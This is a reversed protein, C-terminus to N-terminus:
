KNLYRKFIEERRPRGTGTLLGDTATLPPIIQMDHIQAYDPLTSNAAAIGATVLDKCESPPLAPVIFASLQPQGDGHVVAQAIQPQALLAAEVWEPSVNRGYSTILVNKRRGTLSLFGEEDIIGLDGTDLDRRTPAGIYGLYGPNAVHISGETIYLDVHPLPKGVSGVQDHDPTNMTVVSACESLGYGEYVPLGMARARAILHPDLKSGGVAIFRLDPLPGSTAAQAMLSKLIEPALIVSTTNTRKLIDHLNEYRAGFQELACLKVTCGALLAAYVGAVNELLVALPLVCHHIGAFREGLVQVISSAVNAMASEPLCVGKATGTTGSTFTVKATGPPFIGQFQSSNNPQEEGAADPANSQCAEACCQSCGGSCSQATTEEAHPSARGADVRQLGNPSIVHTVAATKLTHESQARTFFPPLPVCVVGSALAALDWILWEVSNDLAIALVDVDRLEQACHAIQKQLDGFTVKAREDQLALREPDHAALSALIM